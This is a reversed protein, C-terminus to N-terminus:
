GILSETSQLGSWLGRGWIKSAGSHQASRKSFSVPPSIHDVMKTTKWRTRPSCHASRLILSATARRVAGRIYILYRQSIQYQIPDNANTRSYICKFDLVASNRKSSCVAIKVDHLLSISHSVHCFCSKSLSQQEYLSKLTKCIRLAHKDHFRYITVM